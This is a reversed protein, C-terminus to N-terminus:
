RQRFLEKVSPYGYVRPSTLSKEQAGCWGCKDSEDDPDPQHYTGILDARGRLRGYRVGCPQCIWLPYSASVARGECDRKSASM